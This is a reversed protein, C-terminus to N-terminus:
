REKKQISIGLYELRLVWRMYGLARVISVGRLMLLLISSERVNM